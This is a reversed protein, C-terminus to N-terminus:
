RQASRGWRLDDVIQPIVTGEQGDVGVAQPLLVDVAQALLNTSMKMDKTIASALQSALWTQILQYFIGDFLNADTVDKVYTIKVSAENCLLKNGEIVYRGPEAAEFLSLNSTDIDAGNYEKIKLFDSPLSFQFAFEFAPTTIDQALEVRGSAFNWHHSRLLGKRLSPYFILCHNANISGDDIATIKNAGIMGLAGNLLDTQSPM